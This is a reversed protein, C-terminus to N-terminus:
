YGQIGATCIADLACCRTCCPLQAYPCWDSTTLAVDTRAASFLWLWHRSTGQSLPGSACLSPALVPPQLDCSSDATPEGTCCEMLMDMADSACRLEAPLCDKVLKTLTAAPCSLFWALVPHPTKMCSPATSSATCAACDPAATTPWCSASLPHAM